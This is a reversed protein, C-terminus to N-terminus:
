AIRRDVRVHGTAAAFSRRLKKPRMMAAPPKVGCVASCNMSEPDASRTGNPRSKIAM